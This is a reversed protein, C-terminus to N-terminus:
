SLAIVQVIDLSRIISVNEDWEGSHPFLEFRHLSVAYHCVLVVALLEVAHVSEVQIVVADSVHITRM